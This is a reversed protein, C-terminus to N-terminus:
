DGLLTPRKTKVIGSFMTQFFVVFGLLAYFLLKVLAEEFQVFSIIIILFTIGLTPLIVAGMMYFMALPNLQSGYKEIQIIQEKTLNKIVNKLIDNISAEEKMGNIIQWITRRFYPSPNKLAMTELANIQPTGANIEKVVTRFESSVEGFEQNSIIVLAEFLPVSSNLQIMVARLAALLDSNLRRIRKGALVKPYSIQMFFVGAVIVIALLVGFIPNSIKFMFLTLVITLFVFMFVNSTICMALYKRTSIKMDARDLDLQLYPMLKEFFAARKMFFASFKIVAKPPM